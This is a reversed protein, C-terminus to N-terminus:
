IHFNEVQNDGSTAIHQASSEIETRTHTRLLAFLREFYEIIWISCCCCHSFSIQSVDFLADTDVFPGKREEEGDGRASRDAPRTQKRFM